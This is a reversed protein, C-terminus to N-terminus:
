EEEGNPTYLIPTLMPLKVLKAEAPNITFFGMIGGSSKAVHSAFSLFGQYLKYAYFPKMKALVPNLAALRETILSTRAEVGAPLAEMYYQVKEIFGADVEQYFAKMEKKLKYSRIHTIKEAWELEKPEFTGDAGAILVTILPLADLLQVKEENNLKNFYELM